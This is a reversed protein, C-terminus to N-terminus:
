VSARPAQDTEEMNGDDGTPAKAPPVTCAPTQCPKAAIVAPERVVANSSDKPYPSTLRGLSSANFSNIGVKKMRCIDCASHPTAQADADNLLFGYTGDVFETDNSQSDYRLTGFM